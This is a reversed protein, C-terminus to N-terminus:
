MRWHDVLAAAPASPPVDARAVAPFARVLTFEACHGCLPNDERSIAVYGLDVVDSWLRWFDCYSCITTAFNENSVHLEFSIQDPLLRETAGGAAATALAQFVPYEGGEIDMKLVDIRAHGNAAALRELSLFLAPDHTSGTRANLDAITASDGLCQRHFVIRPDAPKTSGDVTCDFTHIACPTAALMAAEFDFENRSGLSYIVCGPALEALSCLWKGGDGVGGYRRLTCPATAARPPAYNFVPRTVYEIVANASPWGHQSWTDTPAVRWAARASSAAAFDAAGWGALPPSSLHALPAAPGGAPKACEGRLLPPASSAFGSSRPLLWPSALLGIAFTVILDPYSFRATWM